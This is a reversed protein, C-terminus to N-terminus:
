FSSPLRLLQDITVRDEDGPWFALGGERAAKDALQEPIASLPQLSYYGTGAITGVQPPACRCLVVAVDQRQATTYVFPGMPAPGDEVTRAVVLGPTQGGDREVAYTRGVEPLGFQTKAAQELSDAVFVLRAGSSDALVEWISPRGASDLTIRIGQWRDPRATKGDGEAPAHWVYAFRAHLKGHIQVTGALHYVTLNQSPTPPSQPSARPGPKEMMLLPALQVHLPGGEADAPKILFAQAFHNTARQRLAAQTSAHEHGRDRIQPAACGALLLAL